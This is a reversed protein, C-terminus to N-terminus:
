MGFGRVPQVREILWDGDERRLTLEYDQILPESAGAARVTAAMLVTAKVGSEVVRVEVDSLQVRLWPLQARAALGAQRVEERGQLRRSQAGQTDLLVQVDRTCLTALRGAGALRDLAGGSEGWSAAAAAQQLVKRIVVEDSPFLWQYALYGGSLVIALAALGLFWRM